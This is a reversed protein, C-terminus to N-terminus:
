PAPLPRAALGQLWPDPPLVATPVAPVLVRSKLPRLSEMLRVQVGGLEAATQPSPPSTELGLLPIM